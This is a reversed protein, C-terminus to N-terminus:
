EIKASIKQSVEYPDTKKVPNTKALASETAALTGISVAAALAASLLRRSTFGAEGQRDTDSSKCSNVVQLAQRGKEERVLRLSNQSCPSRRCPLLAIGCRHHLPQLVTQM